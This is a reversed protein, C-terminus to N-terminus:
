STSPSKDLGNEKIKYLLAKYSIGLFEAAAKRNWRTRQLMRSIAVCEAARAAARAIDKLSGVTAADDSAAAAPAAAPPVGVPAALGATVRGVPRVRLARQMERVVPVDTGLVVMRRAADELERINGPWDYEGLLRVTEAAIPPQPKNYHVSATRLFHELLVPVDERRERLPPLTITVPRLRGFLDERFSGEAVARELDCNTAAIVRVDVRVDSRGGLRSFEGDQLVRLLKAQLGPGMEGIGDLFMTGHNAFEFRGPKQQAAGTFAGREFGFLESEILESPLAACNVKVFPGDERPSWQHIAHAAVEKGTGSEGRLLVSADTDAVQEMLRQVDLMRPSRGAFLRYKPEAQLQRRLPALEATLRRQHLANALRGLLATERFPKYLLDTAGLRMAQVVTSTQAERSVLIVPLHPDVAKLKALLDLGGDTAAGM